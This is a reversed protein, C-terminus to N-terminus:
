NGNRRQYDLKETSKINLVTNKRKKNENELYETEKLTARPTM